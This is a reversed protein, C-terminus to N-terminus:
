RGRNTSNHSVNSMLDAVFGGGGLVVELPTHRGKGRRGHRANRHLFARQTTRCLPLTCEESKKAALCAELPRM